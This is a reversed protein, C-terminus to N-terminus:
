QKTVALPQTASTPGLVRRRRLQGTVHLVDLQCGCVTSVDM